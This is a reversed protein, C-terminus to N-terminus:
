QVDSPAPEGKNSDERKEHYNSKLNNYFVQYVEQYVRAQNIWEKTFDILDQKPIDHINSKSQEVAKLNREGQSITRKSYENAAEIIFVCMQNDMCMESIFKQSISQNYM